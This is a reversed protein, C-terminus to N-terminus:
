ITKCNSCGPGIDPTKKLGIQEWLVRAKDKLGLKAIHFRISRDSLKLSTRKELDGALVCGSTPKGMAANIAYQTILESKTVPDFVYDNQQGHRKDVLSGIDHERMERLLKDTNGTSYNLANAATKRDLIGNDLFTLILTKFQLENNKPISITKISQGFNLEFQYENISCTLESQVTHAMAAKKSRMDLFGSSGYNTVRTFFSLLTDLPVELYQAIEQRKAGLLFLVFAIIRNVFKVGLVSKAHALRKERNVTSYNLEPLCNKM